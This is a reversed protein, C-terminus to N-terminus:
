LRPEFQLVLTSSPDDIEFDKHLEVIRYGPHLVKGNVVWNKGPNMNLRIPGAATRRLVIRLPTWSQVDANHSLVFDCGQNIGCRDTLYGNIEQTGVAGFLFMPEYGYVEGLNQQTAQLLRYTGSGFGDTGGQTKYGAYQEFTGTEAAPPNYKTQRYNLVPYTATAVDLVCLALLLYFVPKRPLQQLTLIIGFVVWGIWRSPVHMQNFVPLQHLWINPDILIHHPSLTALFAMAIGALLAWYRGPIRRLNELQRLVVYSFLALVGFGIYDAYEVVGYQAQFLAQPDFANRSLLVM